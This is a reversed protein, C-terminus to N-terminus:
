CRARRRAYATSPKRTGPGLDLSIYPLEGRSGLRVPFAGAPPPSPPSSHPVNPTPRPYPLWWGRVVAGWKLKCVSSSSRLDFFEGGLEEGADSVAVGVADEVAVQFGLVEEDVAVAVEFKGIEAERAGKADGEAGVRM